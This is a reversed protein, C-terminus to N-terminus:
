RATAGVVEVGTASVQYINNWKGTLPYAKGNVSVELGDQKGLKLYVKDLSKLEARTLSKSNGSELSIDMVVKTAQPDSYIGIWANGEKAYSFALTELGSAATTATTTTAQRTGTTATAATGTESSTSATPATSISIDSEEENGSGLYALVAVIAIALIAVILFNHRKRPGKPRATRPPQILHERADGTDYRDNYEDLLVQFDVGLYEAYTRLFGKVYTGSPLVDFDENEMAQIYKVRIKTDDEAQQLSIDRRVRADRLSTGIEFM